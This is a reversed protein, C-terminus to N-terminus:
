TELTNAQGRKREHVLFTEATDVLLSLMDDSLSTASAVLKDIMAASATNPQHQERGLVEDVSAQLVGCIRVLTTLDPERDGTVYFGYRREGIGARRAVEADSLGLERARRRLNKGFERMRVFQAYQHEQPIYTTFTIPRGFHVYLTLLWHDADVPGVIFTTVAILISIGCLSRQLAENHCERDISSAEVM